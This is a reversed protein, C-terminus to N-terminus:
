RHVRTAGKTGLLSPFTLEFKSRQIRWKEQALDLHKLVLGNSTDSRGLSSRWRCDKPPDILPNTVCNGFRSHVDSSEITDGERTLGLSQSSEM